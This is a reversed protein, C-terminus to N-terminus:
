DMSFSRSPPMASAFPTRTCPGVDHPAATRALSPEIWEADAGLRRKAGSMSVGKTDVIRERERYDQLARESAEVKSRLDGMRERMWGTAKQTMAM